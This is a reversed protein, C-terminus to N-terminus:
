TKLIGGGYVGLLLNHDKKTSCLLDINKKEIAKLVASGKIDKPLSKKYINVFAAFDKIFCNGGAGRGSKHVPNAYRNSILPDAKVSKEVVSWDMGSKQCLDYILNFFIIQVFGSINHAYKIIESEDSTCTLSFPAKPLIKHVKAAATKWPKDNKPMGIINSFPHSAEYVATTESLFEPSHLIIIKPYKKQLLKTTGPPLTSKIVAIKGPGVLSLVSQVINGDFGKPTTPTPVAIFVVECDSIHKKNSLYQTELAYRVVKYKRKEFDLAYNKGIYGQGIFGIKKM